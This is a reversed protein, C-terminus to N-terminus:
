KNKKLSFIEIQKELQSTANKFYTRIQKRCRQYYSKFNKETVSSKAKNWMNKMQKWILTLLLSLPAGIFAGIFAWFFPVFTLNHEVNEFKVETYLERQTEDSNQKDGQILFSNSGFRGLGNLIGNVQYKPPLTVRVFSRGNQLEPFDQVIFTYYKSKWVEFWDRKSEEKTINRIKYSVNISILRNTTNGGYYDGPEVKLSYDSNSWGSIPVSNNQEKIKLDYGYISLKTLMFEASDKTFRFTIIKDSEVASDFEMTGYITTAVNFESAQDDLPTYIEEYYNITWDRTNQYVIMSWCLSTIFLLSFVFIWMKM